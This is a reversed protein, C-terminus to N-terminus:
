SFKKSEATNNVNSLWVEFEFLEAFKFNYALVSQPM